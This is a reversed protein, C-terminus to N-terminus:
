LKKKIISNLLYVGAGILLYKQVLKFVKDTTSLNADAAAAQQQAATLVGQQQLATIDYIGTKHETYYFKDNSDKFAWWLNTRNAKPMLFSYVVGVSSGPNVTYIIPADDDAYRTVPIQVKAILTKDVIDAANFTAM